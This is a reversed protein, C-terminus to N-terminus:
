AEKEVDLINKAHEQLQKLVRQNTKNQRLLDEHLEKLSEQLCMVASADIGSDPEAEELEEIKKELEEIREEHEKITANQEEIEEDREELTSELDEVEEIDNEWHHNLIEIFLETEAQSALEAVVTDGSVVYFNGGEEAMSFPGIGLNKIREPWSQESM